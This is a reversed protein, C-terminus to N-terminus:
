EGLPSQVWKWVQRIPRRITLKGYEELSPIRARASVYEMTGCRGCPFPPQNAPHDPPCVRILDNALYNVTKRCFNCKLEVVMGDIAADRLTRPANHPHARIPITQEPM